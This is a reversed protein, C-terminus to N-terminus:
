IGRKIGSSGQVLGKPFKRLLSHFFDKRLRKNTIFVVSPSVTKFIEITAREDEGLSGQIPTIPRMEVKSGITSVEYFEKVFWLVMLVIFIRIWKIVEPNVPSNQSNM